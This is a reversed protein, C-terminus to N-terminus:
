TGAAVQRARRVGVYELTALVAVIAAQGSVFATGIATVGVAVGLLLFSEITWLVNGVVVLYVLWVYLSRRTAIWLIFLGLPALMAGAGILLSRDLGLLPALLTAGPLLLAAMGLCSIADLLLVRKLFLPMQMITEKREPPPHAPDPAPIARILSALGNRTLYHRRRAGANL